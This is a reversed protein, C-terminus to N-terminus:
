AIKRIKVLSPLPPLERGFRDVLKEFSPAPDASPLPRVTLLQELRAAPLALDFQMGVKMGSAWVVRGRHLGGDCLIAIM